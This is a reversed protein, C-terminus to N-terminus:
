YNNSTTNTNGGPGPNSPESLGALMFYTTMGLAFVDNKEYNLRGNRRINTM